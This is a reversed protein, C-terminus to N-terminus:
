IEDPEAPRNTMIHIKAVELGWLIEQHSGTSSSIYTSEGRSRAVIVISEWNEAMELAENLVDSPNREDGFLKVVNSM